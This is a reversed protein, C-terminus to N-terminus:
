DGNWFIRGDSEIGKSTVIIKTLFNQGDFGDVRIMWCKNAKYLRDTSEPKLALNEAGRFEKPHGAMCPYEIGDIQSSSLLNEAIAITLKFEQEHGREVPKTFESSLLSRILQIKDANKQGFHIKANPTENLTRLTRPLGFEKQKEAVGLEMVHPTSTPDKLSLELITFIDGVQPRMELFAIQWTAAVYMISRKLRNMRGLTTVLQAPKYWLKSVHDFKDATENKRARWCYESDIKRTLCSYGQMFRDVRKALDDISHTALDCRKLASFEQKISKLSRQALQRPM